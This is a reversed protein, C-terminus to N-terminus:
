NIRTGTEKDFVHVLRADPALVVADGPQMTVRDRFVATVEHGAVRCVVHTESGTPEV